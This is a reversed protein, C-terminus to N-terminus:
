MIHLHPHCIRQRGWFPKRNAVNSNRELFSLQDQLILCCSTKEQLTRTTADINGWLYCGEAQCFTQPLSTNKTNLFAGPFGTPLWALSLDLAKLNRQFGWAYDEETFAHCLLSVGPQVCCLGSSPMVNRGNGCVWSGLLGSVTGPILCSTVGDWGLRTSSAWLADRLLATPGWDSHCPGAWSRLLTRSLFDTCPWAQDATDVAPDQDLRPDGSASKIHNLKCISLLRTFEKLKVDM